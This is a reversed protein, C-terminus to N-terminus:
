KVAPPAQRQRLYLFLDRVGDEDLAAMLGEPMMSFESLERHAIDGRQVTTSGALTKLTLSSENEASVVGSVVQGDKLTLFTQQYDKGIVANPDLINQLLYDLDEYSGPLEPGVKGGEGFMTHCVACTQQFLVKGHKLDARLISDTTLFKKFQAIQAQKDASSARVAGWNAALWEDIVGEKLGRLQRALPANVVSADLTKADIANLMKRANSGRSTLTNLTERKETADFNAYGSILAPAIKGDDFVALGRLVAVRLPGPTKLLELLVPLTAGDRATVLSDLAALRADQPAAADALTKRMEGLVASGGFVAALAKAQQQVNTDPSTKLKAYLADWGQPAPVERKGKLAASIGKLVSAQAVPDEVRDLTRVLLDLPTEALASSAFAAALTLSLLTRKM